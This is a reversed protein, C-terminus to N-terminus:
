SEDLFWLVATGLWRNGSVWFKMPKGCEEGIKDGERKRQLKVGPGAAAKWLKQFSVSFLSFCFVSAEPRHERPWGAILHFFFFGRCGTLEKGLLMSRGPNHTLTRGCLRHRIREPRWSDWNAILTKGKSLLKSWARLVVQNVGQYAQLCNGCPSASTPSRRAGSEWPGAKRHPFSMLAVSDHKLSWLGFTFVHLGEPGGAMSQVGVRRGNEGLYGFKSNRRLSVLSVHGPGLGLTSPAILSKGVDPTGWLRRWLVLM